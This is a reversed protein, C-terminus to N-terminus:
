SYATFSKRVNQPSNAYNGTIELESGKKLKLDILQNPQNKIKFIVPLDISQGKLKIFTYYYPEQTGEGRLQISSTLTGKITILSKVEALGSIGDKKNLTILTETM